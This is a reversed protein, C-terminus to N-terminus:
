LSPTTTDRGSRLVRGPRADTAAGDVVIEEGNVLVHGIGTSGAFLRRGGAPLDARTEPASSGVTAEDFVM